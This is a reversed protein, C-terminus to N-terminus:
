SFVHYEMANCRYNLITQLETLHRVDALAKDVCENGRFDVTEMSKLRTFDISITKLKNNRFQAEKLRTNHRFLESHLFELQNSNANVHQLKTNMEFTDKRLTKLKNNNIVFYKLNPLDRLTDEDVTEVENYKVDLYWLRDMDKFNQRKLCKLGLNRDSYSVWFNELSKFKRGIGYPIFDLQGTWFWMQQMMDVQMRALLHVLKSIKM